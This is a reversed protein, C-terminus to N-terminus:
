IAFLYKGYNTLQQNLNASVEKKLLVWASFLQLFKERQRINQESPLSEEYIGILGQPLAAINERQISQNYLGDIIYRLYTPNTLQPM